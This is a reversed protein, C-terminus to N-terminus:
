CLLASNRSALSTNDSAAHNAVWVSIAQCSLSANIFREIFPYKNNTYITVMISPCRHWLCSLDKCYMLNDFHWVQWPIMSSPPKCIAQFPTSLAVILNQPKRQSSKRHKKDFQWIPVPCHHEILPLHSNFHVSPKQRLCLTLLEFFSLPLLLSEALSLGQWQTCLEM